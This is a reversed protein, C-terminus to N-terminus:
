CWPTAWAINRGRLSPFQSLKLNLLNVIEVYQEPLYSTEWQYFIICFFFVVVVWKDSKSFIFLNINQDDSM